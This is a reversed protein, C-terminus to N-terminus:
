KTQPGKTKGTAREAEIMTEGGALTETISTIDNDDERVIIIQENEVIEQMSIASQEREALYENM